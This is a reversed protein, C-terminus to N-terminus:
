YDLTIHYAHSSFPRSKTGQTSPRNNIPECPNTPQNASLSSSTQLMNLYQAELAMLSVLNMNNALPVAGCQFGVFPPNHIGPSNVTKPTTFRNSMVGHQPLPLGPFMPLLPNMTQLTPMSLGPIPLAPQTVTSPSSAPCVNSWHHSGNGPGNGHETISGPIVTKVQHSTQKMIVDNTTEGFSSPPQGMNIDTCTKNESESQSTPTYRPLESSINTRSTDHNQTKSQVREPMLVQSSVPIIPSVLNGCTINGAHFSGQMPVSTSFLSSSPVVPNQSTFPGTVMQGPPFQVPSSTGNKVPNLIVNSQNFQCPNTLGSLMDLGLMPLLPQVPRIGGNLSSNMAPHVMHLNGKIPYSPMYNQPMGPSMQSVGQSVNTPGPLHNGNAVPLETPISGRNTETKFGGHYLAADADYSQIGHGNTMVNSLPLDGYAVGCEKLENDWNENEQSKETMNFTVSSLPAKDESESESCTDDSDQSDFMEEDHRWDEESPHDNIVYPMTSPHIAHDPIYRKDKIIDSNPEAAVEDDWDESSTVTSATITNDHDCDKTEDLLKSELDSCTIVSKMRVICPDKNAERPESRKSSPHFKTCRKGLCCNRGYPCVNKEEWQNLCTKPRFQEYKSHQVYTPQDHCSSTMIGEINPNSQPLSDNEVEVPSHEQNKDKDGFAVSGSHTTSSTLSIGTRVDLPVKDLEQAEEDTDSLCM